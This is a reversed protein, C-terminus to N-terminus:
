KLHPTPTERNQSSQPTGAQNLGSWKLTSTLPSVDHEIMEQLTHKVYGGRSIEKIVIGAIIKRIGPDESALAVAKRVVRVFLLRVLRLHRHRHSRRIM